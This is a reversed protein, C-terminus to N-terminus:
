EPEAKLDAQRLLDGLRNTLHEEPRRYTTDNREGLCLNIVKERIVTLADHQRSLIREESSSSDLVLLRAIYRIHATVLSEKPALLHAEKRLDPMRYLTGAIIQELPITVVSEHTKGEVARVARKSNPVNRRISMPFKKPRGNSALIMYRNHSSSTGDRCYGERVSSPHPLRSSDRTRLLVGDVILEGVRGDIVGEVSGLEVVSELLSGIAQYARNVDTLNVPDAEQVRSRFMPAHALARRADLFAVQRLDARPHESLARFGELGENVFALDQTALGIELTNWAAGLRAGPRTRKQAQELLKGNAILLRPDVDEALPLAPLGQWAETLLEAM